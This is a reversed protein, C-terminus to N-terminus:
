SGTLRPSGTPSRTDAGSHPSSATAARSSGSTFGPTRASSRFSSWPRTRSSSPDAGREPLHRVLGDGERARAGRAAAPGERVAAHSRGLRVRVRQPHRVPRRPSGTRGRRLCRDLPAADRRLLSSPDPLVRLRAPMRSLVRHLGEPTLVAPLRRAPRRPRGTGLGGAATATGPIPATSGSEIADLLRPLTREGEGVVVYDAARAVEDWCASAQPGGAITVCDLGAMEAILAPANAVNLSYCTVDNMPCVGGHLSRGDRELAAALAAETNATGQARRFNVRVRLRRFRHDPYADGSAGCSCRLDEM